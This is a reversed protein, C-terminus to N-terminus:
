TIAQWNKAEVFRGLHGVNTTAVIMDDGQRKMTVVQAALIVDGDLAKDDATPQGRRRAEAWFEAAKLMAETTLPVYGIAVKLADLREVGKKKGARLLERRVEYDAVEPVMVVVGRRLLQQLWTKIEPNKRPHTVMGLPGADLLVVKSM